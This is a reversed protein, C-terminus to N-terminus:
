KGKKLFLDREKLRRNMLGQSYEGKIFVFREFQKAAGSLNGDLLMGLMTSRRFEGIGINYIFSILANIQNNNLQNFMKDGDEMSRMAMRLMCKIDKCTDELLDIAKEQTIVDGKKVQTGDQWYRNGYGITWKEADCLYAIPEYGEAEKIFEMAADFDKM